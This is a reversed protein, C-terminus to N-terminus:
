QAMSRIRILCTKNDTCSYLWSVLAKDLAGFGTKMMGFGYGTRSLLACCAESQFRNETLQSQRCRYTSESSAISLTLFILESARLFLDSFGQRGEWDQNLRVVEGGVRLVFGVILM